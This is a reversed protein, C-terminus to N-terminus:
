PISYAYRRAPKGGMKMSRMLRLTRDRGCRNRLHGHMLRHGYRGKVRQHIQRIQEKLAEDEIARASPRRTKWAHYASRAVGLAECLVSLGFRDLHRAIFEFKM